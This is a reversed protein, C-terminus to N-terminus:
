TALRKVDDETDVDVAADEFPIVTVSDPHAEIVVRAGRDGELALLEDFFRSSFVAPVGAIGRYGTAVIPSGGALLMRLHRDTVLPQDCLTVLIRSAGKAAAVGARISSAIGESAHENVVVSVDLVLPENSVVIVQDAVHSANRVARALLTEGRFLLQQKPRGLRSSSGAALVLAVVSM